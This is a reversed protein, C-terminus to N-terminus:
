LINNSYSLMQKITQKPADMNQCPNTMAQLLHKGIFTYLEWEYDCNFLM